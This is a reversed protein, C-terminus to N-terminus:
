YLFLHLANINREIIKVGIDQQICHISECGLYVGERIIIEIFQQIYFIKLTIYMIAVTECFLFWHPIFM